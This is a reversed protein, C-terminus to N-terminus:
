VVMGDEIWRMISPYELKYEDLKDANCEVFAQFEDVDEFAYTFDQEFDYTATFICDFLDDASFLELMKDATKETVYDLANKVAIDSDDANSEIGYTECCFEGVENVSYGLTDLERIIDDFDTENIEDYLRYAFENVINQVAFAKFVCDIEHGEEDTIVYGGEEFATWVLEYFYTAKENDEFIKEHIFDYIDM